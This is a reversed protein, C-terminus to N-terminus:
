KKYVRKKKKTRKKKGGKVFYNEMTDNSIFRIKGGRKKSYNKSYNKIYNKIGKRKKKTKKFDRHAKKCHKGCIFQGKRRCRCDKAKKGGKFFDRPKETILAATTGM